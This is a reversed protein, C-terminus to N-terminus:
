VFLSYTCGRKEAVLGGHTGVQSEQAGFEFRGEGAADGRGKGIAIALRSFNNGGPNRFNIKQGSAQRAAAQRFDTARRTGSARTKQNRGQGRSSGTGLHARQDISAVREIRM